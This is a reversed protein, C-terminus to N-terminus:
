LESETFMREYFKIEKNICEMVAESQFAENIIERKEDEDFKNDVYGLDWTIVVCNSEKEIHQIMENEQM